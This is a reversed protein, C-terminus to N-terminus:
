NIRKVLITFEYLNYDHLLAVNRSFNRKCHDFILLPDAYYLDSRMFEEDSYQTLMNFSFGKESLELLKELTSFIYQLWEEDSIHKKVNFIGSAVTYDARTLLKEDGFFSNNKKGKHIDVANEIMKESLDYGRYQISFDRKSLYDLLAGYGCGYDNISFEKDNGIIKIIQDFRLNQSEVSNWDVGKASPGFSEVKQTYYDGVMKLIESQSKM